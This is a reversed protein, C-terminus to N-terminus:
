RRTCTITLRGRLTHVIRSKGIGPEGGLLVVQGEGEQAREFRDLLLGLEHDRGVLPTLRHGRLAEFRDEGHSKGEVRYVSLPEAFGKLRQPALDIKGLWQEIENAM